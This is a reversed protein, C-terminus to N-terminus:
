LNTPPLQSEELQELEALEEPSALGRRAKRSLEGLRAVRRLAEDAEQTAQDARQEAQDARQEAQEARQRAQAEFEAPTLVWTGTQPDWLRLSPGNAELHLGLVQSPLRNQRRQIPRYVGKHLRYGQLPPDLYDGFPDFLFYERVKLVNQYLNFKTRQDERRTSSSTLEIVVQPAKKEEWVLYNERERKKVGRVVFVDPSVHRRLNGRDYFMLLNGSICVRLVHEFFRQLTQILEIMLDRHRETEAM